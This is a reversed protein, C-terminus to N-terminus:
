KEVSKSFMYQDLKNVQEGVTERGVEVFDMMDTLTLKEGTKFCDIDLFVSVDPYGERIKIYAVERDEPALHNEQNFVLYKPIEEKKVPGVTFHYSRGGNRDGDKVDV